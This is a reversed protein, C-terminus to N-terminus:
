HLELVHCIGRIFDNRMEKGPLGEALMEATYSDKMDM